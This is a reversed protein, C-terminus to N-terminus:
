QIAGRTGDGAGGGTEAGMGDGEGDRVTMRIKGDGGRRIHAQWDGARRIELELDVELRGALGALEVSSTNCTCM